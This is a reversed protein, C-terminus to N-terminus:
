VRIKRSYSYGKTIGPNPTVGYVVAPNSVCRVERPALSSKHIRIEVVIPIFWLRALRALDGASKPERPGERRPTSTKAFPKRNERITTFRSYCLCRREKNRNGYSYAELGRPTEIGLFQLVRYFRQRYYCRRHFRNLGFRSVRYFM